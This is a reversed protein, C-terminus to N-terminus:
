GFDDQVATQGTQQQPPQARQAGTAPPAGSGNGQFPMQPQAPAATGRPQPQLDIPRPVWGTIKFVPAYNTSSRQGQGTTIPVTKVLAVVPLMGKNAQKLEEYEKYVAEISGLFAKASSAMERVPKDGGIAPALKVLFRIGNKHQESPRDPMKAKGDRVAALPVLVLSPATGAAFNLWGVEINELDYVARYDQTIDIKENDWNGTSDQGREIRFFRGARADYTAIPLWDGGSSPETSFGFVSM